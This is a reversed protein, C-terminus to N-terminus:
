SAPSCRSIDQRGYERYGRDGPAHLSSQLLVVANEMGVSPLRDCVGLSLSSATSKRSNLFALYLQRSKWSRGTSSFIICSSSSAALDAGVAALRWARRKTTIRSLCLLSLM